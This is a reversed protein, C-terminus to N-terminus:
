GQLIAKAEAERRATLGKLVKGGAKDWRKCESAAQAWDAAEIRKRFTSSKYNGLGLNYVWSLVGAVRKVSEGQLSPSFKLLGQLFEQQVQMQMRDVDGKPLVKGVDSKQLPKHDQLFTLGHGVTPVGVPDLYVKYNGQEDVPGTGEFPVLFGTHCTNIVEQQWSDNDTM